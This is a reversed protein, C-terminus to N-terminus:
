WRKGGIDGARWMEGVNFYDYWGEFEEESYEEVTTVNDKDKEFVRVNELHFKDLLHPSHTTIIFNTDTNEAVDSILNALGHIMDPHLSMEPEDLCVLKGRNPNLLISLLCLYRLTGDSLHALHVASNLGGEDLLLEITGSGLINFDFGKFHPNVDNLAKVLERYEKKHNIKILNIIQALNSGDKMLTKSISTATIAKRIQSNSSTNFYTYIQTDKIAQKIALLHPFDKKESGSVQAFALERVNYNISKEKILPTKRGNSVLKQVISSSGGFGSIYSFDGISLNEETIYGNQGTAQNIEIEYSIENQSFLFDYYASLKEADFIFKLNIKSLETDRESAKCFVNNFGGYKSIILDQLDTEGNGTVGVKLLELAKFLNSKGSGNIGVLLNTQKHLDITERRFSFFNTLQISKIM